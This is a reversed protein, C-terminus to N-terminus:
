FDGGGRQGAKPAPNRKKQIKKKLLIRINKYLLLGHLIEFSKSLGMQSFLPLPSLFFVFHQQYHVIHGSHLTWHYRVCEGRVLKKDIEFYSGMYNDGERDM